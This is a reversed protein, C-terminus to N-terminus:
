ASPATPRRIPGSGPRPRCNKSGSASCRPAGITIWAAKELFNTSGRWPSPGIRWRFMRRLLYAADHPQVTHPRQPEIHEPGNHIKAAPARARRAGEERSLAPAAARGGEAA